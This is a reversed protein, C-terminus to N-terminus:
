FKSLYQINTITNKKTGMNGDSLTAALWIDIAKWIGFLTFTVFPITVVRM